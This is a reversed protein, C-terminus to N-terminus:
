GEIAVNLMRWGEGWGGGLYPWLGVRLTYLLNEFGDKQCSLM